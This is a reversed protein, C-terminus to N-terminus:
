WPNWLKLAPSTRGMERSTVYAAFRACNEVSRNLLDLQNGLEAWAKRGINGQKKLEAAITRKHGEIDKVSTYGTEGGNLMFEKFMREYKDSMDLTGNEWKRLLMGTSYVRGGKLGHRLRIARRPSIPSFKGFNKLFSRAYRPNEKVWAMANSYFMDRMFNSMVFDPNRTTYFASLNRNVYEGLKLMNGIVGGTEVNPNTLGNLAQAARPNGNITMVYTQGNRKVLVQHENLNGRVVKYPINRADRGRRYKDPKAAALSQMKAEFKAIEAEVQGHTMDPKLNAFVPVWEDTVDNYQLWLQSISVLDSPNGHVFNLFRQKMINRNGQRIADDAMMAITAIPDDAKSERGEAKKFVNGMLPGDKSTLSM